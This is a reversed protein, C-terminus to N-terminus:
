NTGRGYKNDRSSAEVDDSVTVYNVTLEGNYAACDFVLGRKGDKSVTVTFESFDDINDPAEEEAEETQNQYNDDQVPTRAEFLVQIM